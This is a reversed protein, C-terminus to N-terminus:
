WYLHVTYPVSPEAHPGFQGESQEKFEQLTQSRAYAEVQGSVGTTQERDSYVIATQANPTGPKLEDCAQVRCCM